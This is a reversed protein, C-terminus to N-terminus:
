LNPVKCVDVLSLRAQTGSFVVLGVVVTVTGVVAAVTDVVDAASDVVTAIDVDGVFYDAVFGLCSDTEYVSVANTVATM